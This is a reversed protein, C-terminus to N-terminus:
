NWRAPKNELVSDWTEWEWNTPESEHASAVLRTQCHPCTFVGTDMDDASIHEACWACPKQISLDPEDEYHEDMLALRM